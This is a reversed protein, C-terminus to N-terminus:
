KQYMSIRSTNHNLHRWGWRQMETDGRRRGEEPLQLSLCPLDLSASEGGTEDGATAGVNLGWGGDGGRWRQIMDRDERINNISMNGRLNTLSSRPKWTMRSETLINVKFTSINDLVVELLVSALDLRGRQAGGLGRPVDSLVEVPVEITHREMCDM